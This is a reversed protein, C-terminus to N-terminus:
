VQNAGGDVYIETGTIFSSESSALFGAVSAVEEARGM